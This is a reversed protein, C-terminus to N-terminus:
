FLILGYFFLKINVVCAVKLDKKVKSLIICHVHMTPVLSRLHCSRNSDIERNSGQNLIQITCQESGNVVMVTEDLLNLKKELSTDLVFIKSSGNNLSSGWILDKQSSVIVKESLASSSPLYIPYIGQIRSRCEYIGECNLLLNLWKRSEEFKESHEVKRQERKVCFKEWCPIESTTLPEKKRFKRCNNIFKTIWASVRLIKHLEYKDLLFDFLDKQKVTTAIINKM